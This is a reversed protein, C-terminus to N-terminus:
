GGKFGDFRYGCAESGYFLVIASGTIKGTASISIGDLTTAASIIGDPRIQARWENNNWTLAITSDTVQHRARATGVTCLPQGSGIRANNRVLSTTGGYAGDFPGAALSASFALAGLLSLFPVTKLARPM